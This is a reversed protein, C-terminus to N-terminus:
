RRRNWQCYSRIDFYIKRSVQTELQLSTLISYFMDSSIADLEGSTLALSNSTWDFSSSIDMQEEKGSKSFQL